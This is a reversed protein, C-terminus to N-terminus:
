SGERITRFRRPPESLVFLAEGNSSDLTLAGTGGLHQILDIGSFEDRSDPARHGQGSGEDEQEVVDGNLPQGEEKRTDHSRDIGQLCGDLLLEICDWRINNTGEESHKEWADAILDVTSM